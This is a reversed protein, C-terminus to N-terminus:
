QGAPAGAAGATESGGMAKCEEATAFKWENPDNDTAAQGACAHSGDAAGCDNQGAKAVGYCKVKADEAAAPAATMVAAAGVAGILAASLLGTKFTTNM